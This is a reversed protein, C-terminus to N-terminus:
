GSNKLAALHRDKLAQRSTISTSTFFRHNELFQIQMQQWEVRSMKIQRALLEQYLSELNGNSPVCLEAFLARFRM